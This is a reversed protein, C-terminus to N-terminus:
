MKLKLLGTTINTVEILLEGLHGDIQSWSVLEKNHVQVLILELAEGVGVWLEDDM